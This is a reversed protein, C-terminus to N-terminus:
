SNKASRIEHEERLKIHSKVLAKVAEPANADRSISMECGIISRIRSLESKLERITSALDANDAVNAKISETLVRIQNRLDKM